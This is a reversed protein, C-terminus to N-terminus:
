NIQECLLGLHRRCDLREGFPGKKKDVDGRRAAAMTAAVTPMTKTGAAGAIALGWGFPGECEAGPTM